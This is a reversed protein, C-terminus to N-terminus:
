QAAAQQAHELVENRAQELMAHVQAESVTPFDSLFDAISHGRDLYDFLAAVPVRTGIFCPTGGQINPNISVINM